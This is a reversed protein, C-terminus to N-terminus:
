QDEYPKKVLEKKSQRVYIVLMTATWAWYLENFDKWMNYYIGIADTKQINM